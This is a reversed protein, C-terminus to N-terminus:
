PLALTAFVILLVAFVGFILAAVVAEALIIVTTAVIQVPDPKLMPRGRM